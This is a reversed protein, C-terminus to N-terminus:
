WGQLALWTRAIRLRPEWSPPSANWREVASEALKRARETDGGSAVLSRALLFRALAAEEPLWHGGEFMEVARELETSANGPRGLELEVEGLVTLAYAHEPVGPAREAYAAAAARAPQLADDPHGSERLLDALNMECRASDRWSQQRRHIELARRMLVLADDFRAMSQLVGAQHEIAVAAQSSEAGYARALLEEARQQDELAEDWRALAHLIVGRNHLALGYDPHDEGYAKATARLQSDSAALAEELEGRMLHSSALNAYSTAVAPHDPGYQAVRRQVLERHIALAEDTRGLDDLVNGIGELVHDISDPDHQEALRRAAQLEELAQESRGARWQLIGVHYRLRTTLVDAIPSAGIREIAARAQAAAEEGREFNLLDQGDVEVLWIWADAALVDHGGASAANAAEIMAVRAARRDGLEDLALARSYGVEAELPRFATARARELLADIRGGVDRAQGAELLGDIEALEDRIVEVERAVEPDDPVPQIAVLDREGSCERVRPV